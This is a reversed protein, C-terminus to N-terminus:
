FVFYCIRLNKLKWPIYHATATVIIEREQNNIMSENNLFNLKEGVVVKGKENAFLNREVYFM